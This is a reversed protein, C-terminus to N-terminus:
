EITTNRPTTRGIAHLHLCCFNARQGKIQPDLTRIGQAGPLLILTKAVM